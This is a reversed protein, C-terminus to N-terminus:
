KAASQRPRPGQWQDDFPQDAHVAVAVPKIFQAIADCVEQLTEPAFDIRSKRCFGSWQSQKAAGSAFDPKLAVPEVNIATGTRSRGGCRM